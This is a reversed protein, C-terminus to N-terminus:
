FIEVIFLYVISFSRVRRLLGARVGWDGKAGGSRLLEPHSFGGRDAAPHLAHQVTGGARLFVAGDHDPSKTKM